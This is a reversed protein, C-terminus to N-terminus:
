FVRTVKNKKRRSFFNFWDYSLEPKETEGMRRWAGPVVLFSTFTERRCGQLASDGQITQPHNRWPLSPRCLHTQQALKATLLLTCM